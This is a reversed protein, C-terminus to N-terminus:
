SCVLLFECAMVKGSKRGLATQLRSKSAPSSFEAQFAYSGYFIKDSESSHFYYHM